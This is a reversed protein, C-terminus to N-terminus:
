DYLVSYYYELDFILSDISTTIDIFECKSLHSKHTIVFSRTQDLYDLFKKYQNEM